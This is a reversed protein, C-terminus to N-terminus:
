KGIYTHTSININEHVIKYIHTHAYTFVHTLELVHTYFWRTNCDYQTYPLRNQMILRVVCVAHLIKCQIIFSFDAGDYM